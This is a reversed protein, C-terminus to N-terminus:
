VATDYGAKKVAERIQAPSAQRPDYDVEMRGGAFSVEAEKVGPVSAVSKKIAAACSGCDMGTIKFAAWVM